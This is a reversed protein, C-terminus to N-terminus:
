LFGTRARLDISLHHESSFFVWTLRVEVRMSGVLLTLYWSHGWSRIRQTRSFIFAIMALVSIPAVGPSSDSRVPHNAALHGWLSTSTHFFIPPQRPHNSSPLDAPGLSTNPSTAAQWHPRGHDLYRSRSGLPPLWSMFSWHVIISVLLNASPNSSSSVLYFLPTDAGPRVIASVSAITAAAAFVTHLLKM